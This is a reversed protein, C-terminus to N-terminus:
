SSAPPPRKKLAKSRCGRRAAQLPTLSILEWIAATNLPIDDRGGGRILAILKADSRVRVIERVVAKISGPLSPMAAIKQELAPEAEDSLVLDAVEPFCALLRWTEPWETMVIIWLALRFWRPDSGELGEHQLAVAHYMTVANIIRKIQRPNPPLYAALDDLRHSVEQEVNEDAAARIALEENTFRTVQEEAKGSDALKLDPSLNDYAVKVKQRVQGSQLPKEKLAAAEKQIVERLKAKTDPKIPEPAAGQRRVRPGLLLRKVYDEQRDPPMEPLIFSMQIAKEVFRAGFTQEPGVSVKSMAKHHNEFAREIWDRDGLIVFVVRPSRLLTQM